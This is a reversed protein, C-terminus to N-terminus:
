GRLIRKPNIKLFGHYYRSDDCRKVMVDELMRIM